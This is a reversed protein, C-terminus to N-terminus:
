STKLSTMRAPELFELVLRPFTAEVYDLTAVLSPLAADHRHNQLMGMWHSPYYRALMGLAYSAVFAQAIKSLEIGGPMLSVAVLDGINWIGTRDLMSPVTAGEPASYTLTGGEKSVFDLSNGLVESVDTEDFPSDVRVKATGDPQQGQPQFVVARRLEKWRWFADRIDVIRALLEGLVVEADKPPIEYTAEINPLSSNNRLFARHHTAEILQRLTGQENFRIKLAGADGDPKSLEEGWQLVTLGHAQALGSERLETSLFLTLARSLGLVGYYMLLPRVNRDATTASTFYNRAQRVSAAIEKAKGDSLARGHCAKFQKRVLESSEYNSLMDWPNRPTM